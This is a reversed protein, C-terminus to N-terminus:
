GPPLEQVLEYLAGDPAVVHAYRYRDNAQPQDVAVGAARLEVVAADLDAVRIGITRSTGGGAEREDSVAFGSGDQAVAAQAPRQPTPSGALVVGLNEVSM